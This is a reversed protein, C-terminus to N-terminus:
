GEGDSSEVQGRYRDEVADISSAVVLWPWEALRPEKGGKNQEVVYCQCDERSEGEDPQDAGHVSDPGAQERPLVCLADISMPWSGNDIGKAFQVPRTPQTISRGPIRGVLSPRDLIRQYVEIRITLGLRGVNAPQPIFPEGEPAPGKIQGLEIFGEVRCDYQGLSLSARRELAVMM